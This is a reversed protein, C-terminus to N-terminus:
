AHVHASESPALAARAGVFLRYDAAAFFIATQEIGRLIAHVPLGAAVMRARRFM